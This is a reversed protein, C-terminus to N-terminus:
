LGPHTHHNSNGASDMITGSASINGTVAINGTIKVDGTIEIHEAKVIATQTNANYEFVAGDDFEVKFRGPGVNKPLNGDTYYSCLIFGDEIGENRFYCLVHEGVEPMTYFQAKVTRGQGIPLEGSVAGDMDDFAVRARCKAPVLSSIQGIRLNNFGDPM